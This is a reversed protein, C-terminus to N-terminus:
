TKLHAQCQFHGTRSFPSFAERSSPCTVEFLDLRVDPSIMRAAAAKLEGPSCFKDNDGMLFLVPSAVTLLPEEQALLALIINSNQLSSVSFRHGDAYHEVRFTALSPDQFFQQVATATM